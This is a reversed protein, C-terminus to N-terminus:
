QVNLKSAIWYEFTSVKTFIDPLLQNACGTMVQSSLAAVYYRGKVDCMLVSGTDVRCRHTEGLKLKFGLCAENEKLQQRVLKYRFQCEYVDMIEAPVVLLDDSLEKKVPDYRGWNILYCSYLHFESGMAPLCVPRVTDGFLVPVDLRILGIDNGRETNKMENNFFHAKTHRVQTMATNNRRNKQGFIVQSTGDVCRAPSLVYDKALLVGACFYKSGKVAVIWPFADEDVGGATIDKDAQWNTKRTGCKVEQKTDATQSIGSMKVDAHKKDPPAGFKRHYEGQLFELSAEVTPVYGTVECNDTWPMTSAVNVHSLM